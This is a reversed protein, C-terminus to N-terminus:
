WLGSERNLKQHVNNPTMFGALGVIREGQESLEYKVFSRLLENNKDAIYQYLPRTLPYEGKAVLRMELPSYARDGDVYVPMAWVTGNPKGNSHLMQSLAIYGIAGKQTRVAELVAAHTELESISAPFDGIELRQKVFYHTGSHNDRGFLVVPLKPGGLEAWNTIKGTFIAQLEALSLSDVGLESHTIIAVADRAVVVEALDLEQQRAQELEEPLIKRSSTAINSKGLLLAEIGKGSGGGSVSVAVQQISDSFTNALTNVLELETDSGSIHLENAPAPTPTPTSGCATLLVGAATFSALVFSWIRGM